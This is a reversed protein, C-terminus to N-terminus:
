RWDIRKDKPDSAWCGAEECGLIPCIAAHHREVLDPQTIYLGALSCASGFTNGSHGDSLEPLIKRQEEYGIKYFDTIAQTNKLAQAIKIAESCVFTEYSEIKWFNPNRSRLGKIRNSFAEPFTQQSTLLDSKIEEYEKKKEALSEERLRKNEEEQQEPTRYFVEQGDLDIGRVPCGLGNGYIRAKMGVKPIVKTNPLGFSWGQNSTIYFRNSGENVETIIVDEFDIDEIKLM